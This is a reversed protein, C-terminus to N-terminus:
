LDNRELKPEVLIVEEREVVMAGAPDGKRKRVFKKLTFAVPCLSDTKRKSNYAALEAAREIVDKPFKKGAQYKIVVHSGAVDKAHLWLDDKFTYKLTLLDNNIANKGVWIKYGKFEFEHFPLQETKVAKTKSTASAEAIKSRLSKLDTEPEIQNIHHQIFAIEKERPIILEKLKDIEIQRNKSKRYFAEANKQPSLDKKLKIEVPRNNDYFNEVTIKEDGQKIAHMNAMILDAWAQYHHDHELEELKAKNKHIYAVGNKLQTNLLQLAAAKEKYFAESHSYTFFFENAAKLPDNFQAAVQHFPLLSLIIKKETQLIYYNSDELKQLTESILKWKLEPNASEFGLSELYEWVIKGFTFYSKNLNEINSLFYQKSWDIERDLKELDIDFDTTLHSRFVEKAKQDQFLVINARNGHMKFLLQFEGELQVAFCRENKFQRIGIVKKMLAENFLDISNKRSRSFHEPFTLCCFDPLLSAKIFFSQQANNFELILEDKNQSFCSVLTYGKVKEELVKSLQRLFFYNNHM